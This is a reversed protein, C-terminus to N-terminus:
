PQPDTFAARPTPFRTGLRGRVIARVGGLDLCFAVTVYVLVGGVVQALLTAVGPTLM